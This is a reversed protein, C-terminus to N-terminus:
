RETGKGGDSRVTEVGRDRGRQGKRETEETRDRGRDRGRQSVGIDRGRRREGTDRGSHREGRDRRRQGKVYQNKLIGPM